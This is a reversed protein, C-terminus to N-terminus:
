AAAKTGIARSDGPCDEDPIGKKTQSHVLLRRQLFGRIGESSSCQLPHGGYGIAKKISRCSGRQDDKIIAKRNSGNHHPYFLVTLYVGNSIGTTVVRFLAPCEGRVRQRLPNFGAPIIIFSSGAASCRPM